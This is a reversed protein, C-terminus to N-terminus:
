KNNASGSYSGVRKSACYHIFSKCKLIYTNVLLTGRLTTVTQIQPFNDFFTEHLKIGDGAVEVRRKTKTPNGRKGILKEM